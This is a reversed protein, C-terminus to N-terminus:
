VRKWVMVDHLTQCGSQDVFLDEYLLWIGEKQADDVGNSVSQVDYLTPEGSFTNLVAIKRRQEDDDEMTPALTSAMVTTPGASSAKNLVIRSEDWSIGRISHIDNGSITHTWIRELKRLSYGRLELFSTNSITSQIEVMIAFRLLHVRVVLACGNAVDSCVGLQSGDSANRLTILYSVPARTGERAVHNLTLVVVASENLDVSHAVSKHKWLMRPTLEPSKPDHVNPPHKPRM